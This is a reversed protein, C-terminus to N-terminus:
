EIAKWMFRHAYRIARGHHRGDAGSVLYVSFGDTTRDLMPEASPDDDYYMLEGSATRLQEGTGRRGENVSAIVVELGVGAIRVWDEPHTKFTGRASKVKPWWVDVQPGVCVLKTGAPFPPPNPERDPM